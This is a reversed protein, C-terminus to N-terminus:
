PAAPVPRRPSKRDAAQPSRRNASSVRQHVSWLAAVGLVTAILNILFHWWLRYAVLWPESFAGFLTSFGLARGGLVWSATLLVHEGVHFGQLRLVLGLTRPRRAPGAPSRVYVRLALLGVLFIVNGILHLLEAGTGHDGGFALADRGAEAWPTLWPPEAPHLAWYALQAVHELFHFVQFGIGAVAVAAWARPTLPGITRYSKVDGRTGNM